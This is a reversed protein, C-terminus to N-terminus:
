SAINLRESWDTLGCVFATQKFGLLKNVVYDESRCCLDVGVVCEIYMLLIIVGFVLKLLKFTVCFNFICAQYKEKNPGRIVLGFYLM